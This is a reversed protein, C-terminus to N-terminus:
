VRINSHRTPCATDAFGNVIFVLHLLPDPDVCGFAFKPIISKHQYHKYGQAVTLPSYLHPDM